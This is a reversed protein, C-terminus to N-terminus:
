VIFINYTVNKLPRVHAMNKEEYGGINNGVAGNGM